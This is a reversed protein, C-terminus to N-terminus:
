TFAYGKRTVRGALWEVRVRAPDAKRQLRLADAALKRKIRATILIHRDRPTLQSLVNQAQVARLHCEPSKRSHEIATWRAVDAATHQREHRIRGHVGCDGCKWPTFIM